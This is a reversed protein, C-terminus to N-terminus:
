KNDILGYSFFDKRKITEVLVGNAWIGYLRNDDTEENELVFHYYTYTNKDTLKTFLHSLGAWVLRKDDVVDQRNLIDPNEKDKESLEDVLISHGGTVILDSNEEETEIKMKYMCNSWIDTNNILTGKGILVIKKYVPSNSNVSYTKVLDGKKLHQVLVYKEVDEKLCLIKTDENFCPPSTSTKIFFFVWSPPTSEIDNITETIGYSAFADVLTTHSDTLILIPDTFTTQYYKIISNDYNRNFIIDSLLTPPPNTEFIQYMDVIPKQIPNIFVQINKNIYNSSITLIGLGYNGYEKLSGNIRYNGGLLLITLDTILNNDKFYELSIFQNENITPHEYYLDKVKAGQNFIQINNGSNDRVIIDIKESEYEIDHIQIQQSVKYTGETSPDKSLKTLTSDTNLKYYILSPTYENKETIKVSLNNLLQNYPAIPPKVQNVYVKILLKESEIENETQTVYINETTLLRDTITIQIFTNNYYKKNVGDVVLDTVISGYKFVQNPEATPIM